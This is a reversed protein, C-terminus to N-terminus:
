GLRLVRLHQPPHVQLFPSLWGTHTKVDITDFMIDLKELDPVSNFLESLHDCPKRQEIIKWVNFEAVEDRIETEGADWDHTTIALRLTKISNFAKMMKTWEHSPTQLLRWNTYGIILQDLRLDLDVVDQLISCALLNPRHMISEEKTSVLLRDAHNYRAVACENDVWAISSQIRISKLNSLRNLVPKFVGPRQLTEYLKRQGALERQYLKWTENLEKSSVPRKYNWVARFNEMYAEMAVGDRIDHPLTPEKLGPQLETPVYFNEKYEEISNHEDMLSQEFLLTHVHHRLVPHQSIQELRDWASQLYTVQVVPLLYELGVAACGRSLLRFTKIDAHKKIYTCVLHLLEAPLKDM